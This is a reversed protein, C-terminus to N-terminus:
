LDKGLLIVLYIATLNGCFRDFYSRKYSRLLNSALHKAFLLIDRITYLGHKKRLYYRNAIQMYGLKKGDIRGSPSQMHYCYAQSCRFLKYNKGVRVSFDWDEMWGYLALKEDFWINKIAEARYAMNCGYLSSEAVLEYKDNKKNMRKGDQLTYGNLGGILCEVDEDFIHVLMQIYNRDLILDDDFFFIVDTSENLNKIGINRQVTLGQRATPIYKVNIGELQYGHSSAGSDVILLENPLLTQEIISNLLNKLDDYRDKTAVIVSIFMMM